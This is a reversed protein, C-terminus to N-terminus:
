NPREAKKALRSSDLNIVRMICRGRRRTCNEAIGVARISRTAVRSGAQSHPFGSVSTPITVHAKVDSQIAPQKNEKNAM